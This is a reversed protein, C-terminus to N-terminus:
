SILITFPPRVFANHEAAAHLALVVRRRANIKGIKATTHLSGLAFYMGSGVASYRDITSGVQLDSQIICLEGHYGILFTGGSEENNNITLYGEEKFAKRLQSIWSVILHERLSINEPKPAPPPVIFELIGGMRFSSTYGLIYDDRRFVKPEIRSSINGSNDAGAADGGLYTKSNSCLGVICTM